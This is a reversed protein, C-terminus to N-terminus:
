FAVFRCFDSVEILLMQIKTGLTPFFFILQM